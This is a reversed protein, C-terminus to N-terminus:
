IHVPYITVHAIGETVFGLKQAAAYSLDICRGQIYPGRDHVTATIAKGNEHNVVVVKTGLPLSKHAVTKPDYQNFPKGNAMTKGHFGPGYWSATCQQASSAKVNSQASTAPAAAYARGESSPALALYFSLVFVLVLASIAKM